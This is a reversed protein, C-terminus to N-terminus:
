VNVEKNQHCKNINISLGDLQELQSKLYEGLKRNFDTDSLIVDLTVKKFGLEVKAKEWMKKAKELDYSYGMDGAVDRYDKGRENFALHRPVYYNVPISGNNLITTVFTEKDIAM